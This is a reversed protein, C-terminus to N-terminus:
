PPFDRIAEGKGVRTKFIPRLCKKAIEKAAGNHRSVEEARGKPIKRERGKENQWAEGMEGRGPASLGAIKRECGGGKRCEGVSKGTKGKGM